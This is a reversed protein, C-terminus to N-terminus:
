VVSKRDGAYATIFYRPIRSVMVAPLFKKLPMEFIGASWTVIKFPLPTLGALIVGWVGWKKIFKEGKELREKGVLWQIVPHGIYKGLFYGILSGLVAAISIIWLIKKFSLGLTTGMTIFIDAPIPFIFQEATTLTFIGAYGYNMIIGKAFEILGYM